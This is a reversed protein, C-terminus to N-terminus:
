PQVDGQDLGMPGRTENPGSFPPGPRGFRPRVAGREHLILDYVFDQVASGAEDWERAGTIREELEIAAIMRPNNHTAMTTHWLADDMRGEAFLEIAKHYHSQAM